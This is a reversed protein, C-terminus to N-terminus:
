IAYSEIIFKMTRLPEGNISMGSRVFALGIDAYVKSNLLNLIYDYENRNDSLFIPM